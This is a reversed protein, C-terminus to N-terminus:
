PTGSPTLEISYAGDLYRVRIGKAWVPNQKEAVRETTEITDTM